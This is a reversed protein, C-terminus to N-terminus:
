IHILSLSVEGDIPIGPTALGVVGETNSFAESIWQYGEKSVAVVRLESEVGDPVLISYSGDASTITSDILTGASSNFM